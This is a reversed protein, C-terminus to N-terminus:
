ENKKKEKGKAMQRETERETKEIENTRKGEKM